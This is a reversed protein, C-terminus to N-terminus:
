WAYAGHTHMTRAPPCVFDSHGGMPTSNFPEPRTGILAIPVDKLTYGRDHWIKDNGDGQVLVPDFHLGAAQVTPSFDGRCKPRKCVFVNRSACPAKGLAGDKAGMTYCNGTGTAKGNEKLMYAGIPSGDTWAVNGKADVQALGSRRCSPICAM